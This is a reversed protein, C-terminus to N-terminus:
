ILSALNNNRTTLKTLLTQTMTIIKSINECLFVNCYECKSQVQKVIIKVNSGALEPERKLKKCWVCRVRGIDKDTKLKHLCRPKDYRKPNTLHVCLKRKTRTSENHPDSAISDNHPDTAIDSNLYFVRVRDMFADLFDYLFNKGTYGRTYRADDNCFKYVIFSNIRIIGMSDVFM